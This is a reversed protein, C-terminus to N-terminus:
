QGGATLSPSCTHSYGPEMSFTPMKSPMTECGTLEPGTREGGWYRTPKKTTSTLDKATKKRGFSIESAFPNAPLMEGHTSHRLSLQSLNSDPTQQHGGGNPSPFLQPFHTPLALCSTEVGSSGLLASLRPITWSKYRPILGPQAVWCSHGQFFNSVERVRRTRM